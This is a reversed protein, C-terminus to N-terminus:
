RQHSFSLHTFWSLLLNVVFPFECFKPSQQGPSCLNFNFSLSFFSLYRSRALSNFFSHFLSTVNIGIIIPAKPATVSPNIFPSSSKSVFPRTSVMWVVANNLKPQSNLFSSSVEHWEFELSLADALASKFFEWFSFSSYVHSNIKKRDRPAVSLPTSDRRNWTLMTLFYCNWNRGLGAM